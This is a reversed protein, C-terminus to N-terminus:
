SEGKIRLGCAWEAKDAGVFSFARIDIGLKNSAPAVSEVTPEVRGGIASVVVGPAINPSRLMYWAKASSGAYAADSLEPVMIPKYKNAFINTDPISTSGGVLNQSVYFREATLMLEPPVLLYVPPGAISKKGDAASTRMKYFKDVALGLGVGDLGLNTTAGTLLNDRGATFFSSNDLFETWVIRNLFSAAGRGVRTRAEALVGTDDNILDEHSLSLVIGASHAQRTYTEESLTGHKLEGTNSLPQFELNDLLNHVTRQYFNSVAKVPFVETWPQPIESFGAALEKNAVNGLIGPLDLTSSGSLRLQSLAAAPPFAYELVRSLNGTTLREGPQASYGNRAASMLILQGLGMQRLHLRDVTDLTREDFQKDINPLGASMCLAAVYVKDDTPANNNGGRWPQVGSGLLGKLISLELQRPEWNGEVAQRGLAEIREVSAADPHEDCALHVLRRLQDRRQAEVRRASLGLVDDTGAAPTRTRQEFTSALLTRQSDSLTAADFGNEALWASFEPDMQREGISAASAAITVSNSPDAGRSVFSLGYIHANRVIVAPGTVVRGNVTATKGAALTVPRDAPYEGEISVSWRFGDKASGRVEDRHQTAASLVGRAILQRGDSEIRAHGCRAKPEHDLCVVIDNEEIKASALDIYIPAASRPGKHPAGVPGGSYAVAEFTAPGDESSALEVPASFRLELPM